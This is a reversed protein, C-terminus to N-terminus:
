FRMRKKLPLFLFFLALAVLSFVFQFGYYRSLPIGYVLDLLFAAGLWEYYNDFIFFLFSAFIFVAWWPLFFVGAFLFCDAVIRGAVGMLLVKLQMHM